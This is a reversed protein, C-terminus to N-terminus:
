QEVGAKETQAQSFDAEPLNFHVAVKPRKQLYSASTTSVDAHGLFNRAAELGFAENILSGAMARLTHLPKPTEVGKERIWEILREWTRWPACDARYHERRADPRAKGGNLVFVPNLNPLSKFKRLIEVADPSLDITREADASKPSFYPTREIRLQGAQLDIQKWTLTDAEARRLGALMLLCLAKWQERKSDAPNIKPEPLRRGRSDKREPIAETKAEALETRGVTFLWAASVDSRFRRTTKGLSVDTFPLPDPLAISDQILPLIKAGFLAKAQRITSDATVKAAQRKVPDSEGAIREARWRAVNEGTLISLPLADMKGRWLKFAENRYGFREKGAKLGAIEGAILRLKVGYQRVSKPNAVAVKSAVEILAGVTAVQVPKKAKPKFRELTPGWGNSSLHGYIEAAKKAANAKNATHLPFNERRGQFMIRVNYDASIAGHGAKPQYVARTWRDAHGKGKGARPLKKAIKENELATEQTEM